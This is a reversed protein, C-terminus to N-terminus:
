DVRERRGGLSSTDEGKEGVWGGNGGWMFLGMTAAARAGEADAEAAAVPATSLPRETEPRKQFLPKSALRYSTSHISAHISVGWVMWGGVWGGVGGGGLAEVMKVLVLALREVEQSALSARRSFALYTPPHTPPHTPPNSPHLLLFCCSVCMWGGM